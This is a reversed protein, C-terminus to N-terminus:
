FLILVVTRPKGHPGTVPSQAVTRVYEENQVQVQDSVQTVIVCWHSGNTSSRSHALEALHEGGNSPSLLPM